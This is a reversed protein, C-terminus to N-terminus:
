QAPCGQGPGFSVGGCGTSARVPGSSDPLMETFGYDTRARMALPVAGRGPLSVFAPRETDFVCPGPRWQRRRASRGRSLPPMRDADASRICVEATGTVM